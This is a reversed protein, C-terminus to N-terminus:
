SPLQITSQQVSYLEGLRKPWYIRHGSSELGSRKLNQDVLYPFLITAGESIWSQDRQQEPGM